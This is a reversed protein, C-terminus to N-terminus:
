RAGANAAESRAEAQRKTRFAPSADLNESWILRSANDDGSINHRDLVTDRLTLLNPPLDLSRNVAMGRLRWAGPDVEGDDPENREPVSAIQIHGIHERYKRFTTAIDGEVIQAHYFDMQVKLNPSGVEERIAHAEAQTNLFYGPIDRTNIPEILLRLGQAKLKTAAAPTESNRSLSCVLWKKAQVM